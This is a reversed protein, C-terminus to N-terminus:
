RHEWGWHEPYFIPGGDGLDQHGVEWFDHMGTGFAPSTVTPDPQEGALVGGMSVEGGTLLTEHRVMLKEALTLYKQQLESVNFSQSDSHTTVERSFRAAIAEAAMSATFYVSGKHQWMDILFQIEEDQLFHEDEQNDGVLFRVKSIDSDAFGAEQYTYTM